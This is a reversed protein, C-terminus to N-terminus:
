NSGDGCCVGHCSADRQEDHSVAVLMKSVTLVGTVTKWEKITVSGQFLDVTLADRKIPVEADSLPRPKTM